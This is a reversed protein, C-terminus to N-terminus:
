VHIRACQSVIEADIKVGTPASNVVANVEDDRFLQQLDAPISALKQESLPPAQMSQILEVMTPHEELYEAFHPWRMALITWLALADLEVDKRSLLSLMINVFYTNVLRKMTRPNPEILTVFRSLRHEIDQMMMPTALYIVAAERKGQQEAFSQKQKDSPVAMEIVSHDSRMTDMEALAKQRATGIEAQMNESRNQLLYVWFAQKLKEPINPLPASFQFTKELFLTGLPKGPEHIIPDLDKYVQQFCANLWRRDAAVVFVVPATRYLTQIGELLEVVFSSQCRDLDDIFIAVPKPALSEILWKFRETIEKMPDSAIETYTLAARSSGILLSRSVAQVTAWITVIVALIKAANDAIAAWIKMAESATESQVQIMSFALALIWVIVILAVFYHSRGISFRWWFERIRAWFGLKMKSQQFVQEMLPWWPPRIHQQEWANLKIVHWNGTELEARLFNLVTSKGAGWPAYLHIAFARGEKKLNLNRIRQALAQAYAARGLLDESMLNLADDRHITVTDAIPNDPSHPKAPISALQENLEAELASLFGGETLQQQLSADLRSLGIIVLRGHLVAARSPDFLARVQALWEQATHRQMSHNEDLTLESAKHNAYEPHLELIAKAFATASVLGRTQLRQSASNVTPSLNLKEPVSFQQSESLSIPTEKLPQETRPKFETSM